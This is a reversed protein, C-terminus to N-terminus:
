ELTLSIAFFVEVTGEWTARVVLTYEGQPVAPDFVFELSAEPQLTDAPAEGGPLEDPWQGFSGSKGVGAYLRIEVSTPRHDAGLRLGLPADSSVSISPTRSPSRGTSDVYM